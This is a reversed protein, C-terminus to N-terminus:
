GRVEARRWLRRYLQHACTIAQHRELLIRKVRVRETEGRREARAIDATLKDCTACTM